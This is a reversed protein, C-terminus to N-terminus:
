ATRELAIGVAAAMLGRCKTGVREMVADVGDEVTTGVAQFIEDSPPPLTITRSFILPAM